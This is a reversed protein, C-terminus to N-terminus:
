QTNCNNFIPKNTSTELILPKFDLTAVKDSRYINVVGDYLKLLAYEQAENFPVNRNKEYYENYLRRYETTNTNIKEEFNTGMAIWKDADKITVMYIYSPTVITASFYDIFITKQSTPIQNYGTSGNFLDRPTPGSEFPHSHVFGVTVGSSGWKMRWQIEQKEGDTRIPTNELVKNTVDTMVTEYAYEVTDTLAIIKNLYVKSSDLTSRENISMRGACPDKSPKKVLKYTNPPGDGADAPIRPDLSPLPGTQQGGGGTGSGSDIYIYDCITNTYSYGNLSATISRCNTTVWVGAVKTGTRMLKTPRDLYIRLKYDAYGIKPSFADATILTGTFAEQTSGENPILLNTQFHWSGSKYTATTFMRNTMTHERNDDGKIYEFSDLVNIGIYLLSDSQKFTRSWDLEYNIQTLFNADKQKKSEQDNYSNKVEQLLPTSSTEYLDKNCGIFLLTGFLILFLSVIQNKIKM